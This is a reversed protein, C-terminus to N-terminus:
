IIYGAEDAVWTARAFKQAPLGTDLNAFPHVAQNLDISLFRGWIGINSSRVFIIKRVQHVLDVQQSVGQRSLTIQYAPRRAADRDVLAQCLLLTSRSLNTPM